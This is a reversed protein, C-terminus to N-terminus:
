TKIKGLNMIEVITFLEHMLDEDWSFM